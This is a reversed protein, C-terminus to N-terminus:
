VCNYTTVIKMCLGKKMEHKKVSHFLWVFAICTRLCVSLPCMQSFDFLHFWHLLTDEQALLKCLCKFDCLLHFDLLCKFDCSLHFDFWNLHKDEWSLGNSFHISLNPWRPRRAIWFYSKFALTVQEYKELSFYLVVMTTTSSRDSLISFTHSNLIAGFYGFYSNRTKM